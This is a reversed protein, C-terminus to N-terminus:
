SDKDVPIFDAPIFEWRIIILPIQLSAFLILAVNFSVLKFYFLALCPILVILCFAFTWRARALAKLRGRVCFFWPALLLWSGARIAAKLATPHPLGGVDGHVLHLVEWLNALLFLYWVFEIASLPAIPKVPRKTRLRASSQPSPEQPPQSQFLLAPLQLLLFLALTEPGNARHLAHAGFCVTFVALFYPWFCWRPLGAEALRRELSRIWFVGLLVLSFQALLLGRHSWPHARLLLVAEGALGAVLVCSLLFTIRGFQKRM